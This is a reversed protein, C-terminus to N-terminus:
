AAGGEGLLEDLRRRIEAAAVAVEVDTIDGGVAVDEVSVRTGDVHIAVTVSGSRTRERFPSKYAWVLPRTTGDDLVQHTGLSAMIGPDGQPLPSPTTTADSGAPPSPPAGEPPMGWGRSVSRPIQLHYAVWDTLQRVTVNFVAAIEEATQGDDRLQLVREGDIKLPTM